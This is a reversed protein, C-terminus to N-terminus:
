NSIFAVPKRPKFILPANAEYVHHWDSGCKVELRRMRRRYVAIRANGQMWLTLIVRFQEQVDEFPFFYSWFDAVGFNLEDFNSLAIVIPRSLGDQKLFEWLIM